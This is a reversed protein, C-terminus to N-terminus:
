ITCICSKLTYEGLYSVPPVNQGMTCLVVINERTSSCIIAIPTNPNFFSGRADLKSTGRGTSVRNNLSNQRFLNKGIKSAYEDSTSSGTLKYLHVFQNSEQKGHEKITM